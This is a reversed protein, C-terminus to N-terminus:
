RVLLEDADDQIPIFEGVEDDRMSHLKMEMSAESMRESEKISNAFAVNKQREVGIVARKGLWPLFRSRGLIEKDSIDWDISRNM